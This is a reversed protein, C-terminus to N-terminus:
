HDHRFVQVEDELFWGERLVHERVREPSVSYALIALSKKARSCTVYFLRRTRDVTTESGTRGAEQARAGFLKDYSFMFGRAEADDIAVLVRDFELGKVGQHTAFPARGSVYADYPEIQSFPAKAFTRWAEGTPDDSGDDDDLSELATGIGDPIEFLGTANVASVVEGFTAASNELVVGTVVDVATRIAQLHRKQDGSALFRETDVLPSFKRVIQWAAFHDKAKQASLLPLVKHAFLGLGPLTGNLLGTQLSGASYLPDFMESFGLRRAAMHHELILKKVTQRSWLDDGTARVMEECVRLEAAAKDTTESGFIFLRAHGELAGEPAIQTQQDVAQRIRNLLAIIRRPCRYNAQKSPTAWAAPLIRGLDPKGDAYIRQMTDGILGLCFQGRHLEDVELFAEMLTKTTDQSEDILLIPFRGILLRQMLPKKTLFDACLSIVEFHNLAARGRNDGVPNYEFKNIRPLRELRRRRRELKAQRDLSAQGARGRAEKEELDAISERLSREIWHKIDSHFSSILNWAFCHITSVQILSNSDLRRTIEDCAANTYTIVGIQQGRSRLHSGYESVAHNLANVLARTKGSGAGAYLFFSRPSTPDLCARIERDAEDQASSSNLVIRPETM